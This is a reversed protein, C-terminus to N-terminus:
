HIWSALDELDDFCLALSYGIIRIKPNAKLRLNEDYANQYYAAKSEFNVKSIIIIEPADVDEIQVAVGMYNHKKASECQFLKVLGQLSDNTGM